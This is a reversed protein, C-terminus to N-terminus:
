CSHVFLSYFTYKCNLRRFRDGCVSVFLQIMTVTMLCCTCKLYSLNIVAISIELKIEITLMVNQRENIRNHNWLIKIKWASKNIEILASLWVEISYLHNHRQTVSDLVCTDTIKKNNALFLMKANWLRWYILHFWNMLQANRVINLLNNYM